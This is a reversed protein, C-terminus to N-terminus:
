NLTVPIYDESHTLDILLPQRGRDRNDQLVSQLSGLKLRLHERAGADRKGMDTWSLRVQAGNDLRCDLWDASVLDVRRIVIDRSFEPHRVVDLLQLAAGLVDTLDTGPLIRGVPEIRVVPLFAEGPYAIFFVIGHRDVAYAGFHEGGELRALPVRETVRVDLRDPFRVALEMDSVSPTRRLFNARVAGIDVQHLNVGERLDDYAMFELVREVPLRGEVTVAITRLRYADNERWLRRDLSKLGWVAATVGGIALAMLILVVAM